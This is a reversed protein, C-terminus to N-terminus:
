AGGAYLRMVELDSLKVIDYYIHFIIDNANATLSSAVQLYITPQVTIRSETLIVEKIPDLPTAVAVGGTNQMAWSVRALEDMSSYETDTSVTALKASLSWDAAAVLSGDKWFAILSTIAWGAKGDLTLGTEVAGVTFVDNGTQTVLQKLVSM